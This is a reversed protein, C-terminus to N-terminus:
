IYIMIHKSIIVGGLSQKVNNFQNLGQKMVSTYPADLSQLKLYKRDEGKLLPVRLAPKAWEPGNPYMLIM